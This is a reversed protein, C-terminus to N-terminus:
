ASTRSINMVGNAASVPRPEVPSILLAQRKDRIPDKGEKVMDRAKAAKDRAEALCVTHLPGIGRERRRGALTYSFIWYRGEGKQVLWLGGGDRLKKSKSAAIGKVTLVNQTHSGM